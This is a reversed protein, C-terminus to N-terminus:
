WAVAVQAPSLSYKSADQADFGGTAEPGFRLWTKDEANEGTRTFALEATTEGSAQSGSTGYFTPAETGDTRSHHFPGM